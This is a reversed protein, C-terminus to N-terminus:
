YGKQLFGSFSAGSFLALGQKLAEIEQDRAEIRTEWNKMLFDCSKHLDASVQELEEIESLTQDRHVEENIKDKETRAKDESKNIIDANKTAVSESTEKVFDEYAKTASEEDRTAEAELAKAEDIIKQMMGMVGGSASSKEYTKFGPPPPQKNLSAATTKSAQVLAAKDYFSKLVDLAATLLKQTAKQDAVVAMFEKNAKERNDSARKLNVNLEMVEAKLTEIANSLDTITASMDEISAVAQDRERYKNASDRENTNFSDICYDKHKVDDDKEKLLKDIMDQITKKVEEFADLRVQSTVLSLRPDRSKKAAADILAAAKARRESIV